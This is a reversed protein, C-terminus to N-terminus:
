KEMALRPREEGNDAPYQKELTKNAVNWLQITPNLGGVLLWKGSPSFKLALIAQQYLLKDAVGVSLDSLTYWGVASCKGHLTRCIVHM